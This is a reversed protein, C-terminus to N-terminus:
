ALTEPNISCAHWSFLTSSCPMKIISQLDGLRVEATNQQALCDCSKGPDLPLICPDQGKISPNNIDNYISCPLYVREHPEDKSFVIQRLVQGLTEEQM